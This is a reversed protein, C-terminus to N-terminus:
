NLYSKLAEIGSDYTYDGEVVLEEDFDIGAESLASKYGALNKRQNIPEHLPGIVFAIQKHGNQYLTSRM